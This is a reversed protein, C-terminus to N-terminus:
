PCSLAKEVPTCWHQECLHRGREVTRHMAAYLLTEPNELTAEVAWRGVLLVRGMGSQLCRSLTESPVDETVADGGHEAVYATTGSGCSPDLAFDGPDTTMLVWREVVKTNTQVVYFRPDGFGAITTDNWQNALSFVRFDDFFRVYRLTNGLATLRNTKLARDMGIRNTKWGGKAPTHTRGELM